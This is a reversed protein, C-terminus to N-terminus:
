VGQMVTFPSCVVSQQQGLTHEQQVWFPEAQLQPAHVITLMQLLTLATGPTLLSCQQAMVLATSPAWGASKRYTTNSNHSVRTCSNCAVIETCMAWAPLTATDRVLAFLLYPTSRHM